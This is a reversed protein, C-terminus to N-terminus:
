LKFKNIYNEAFVMTENIPYILYENTNQKIKIYNKIIYECIDLGAKIYSIQTNENFKTINSYYSIPHYELENKNIHVQKYRKILLVLEDSDLIIPKKNRKKLEDNLFPLVHKYREIIEKQEDLEVKAIYRKIYISQENLADICESINLIKEIIKLIEPLFYVNEWEGYIEQNSDIVNTENNYYYGQSNFEIENACLLANAISRRNPYKYNYKYSKNSLILVWDDFTKNSIRCNKDIESLEKGDLILKKFERYNIPKPEVQIVHFKLVNLLINKNNNSKYQIMNNLKCEANMNCVDGKNLIGISGYAINGSYWLKEFIFILKALQPLNEKKCLYDQYKNIVNLIPNIINKEYDSIQLSFSFGLKSM